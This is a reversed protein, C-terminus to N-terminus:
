LVVNGIQVLCVLLPDVDYSKGIREFTQVAVNFEDFM